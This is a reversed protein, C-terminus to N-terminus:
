KNVDYEMGTDVTIGSLEAIGTNDLDMLYELAIGSLEAQGINDYDINTDLQIGNLEAQKDADYDFNPPIFTEEVAGILDEYEMGMPLNFEAIVTEHTLDEITPKRNLRVRSRELVNPEVVLGVVANSRQPLLKKIYKFLTFDYIELARFYAEFDNRNEYKLWYDKAFTTLESYSENYTDGPDGIYDDIEFYGLQNFIDENIATQPSFYVGVRNSDVSYRDYSSKEVRTKTNLRKNPDLSSSEIRVKNTYLSSGGLSPSPTHYTEEFGELVFNSPDSITLYNLSTSKTYLTSNPQTPYQRNANEVETTSLTYRQLLICKIFNNISFKLASCSLSPSEILFRSSLNNESSNV